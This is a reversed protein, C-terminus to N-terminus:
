RCNNSYIFTIASCTRIEPNELNCYNFHPYTSKSLTTKGSQRPGTITVVPYEKMLSELENQIERKIIM